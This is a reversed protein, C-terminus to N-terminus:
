LVVHSRDSKKFVSITVFLPLFLDVFFFVSICPKQSKCISFVQFHSEDKRTEFVAHFLFFLRRESGLLLIIYTRGFM